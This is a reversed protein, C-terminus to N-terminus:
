DSIGLVYSGPNATQTFIGHWQWCTRIDRACRIFLDANYLRVGHLSFAGVVKEDFWVQDIKRAHELKAFKEARRKEDEAREQQAREQQRREIEQRKKWRPTGSTTQSLTSLLGGFLRQGRKKEEQSFNRRGSSSSLPPAGIPRKAESSLRSAVESDNAKARPSSNSDNDQTQRDLREQKLESGNAVQGEVNAEAGAGNHERVNRDEPTEADETATPAAAELKVRKSTADEAPPSPSAKRKQALAEETETMQASSFATACVARQLSFGFEISVRQRRKFLIRIPTRFQSSAGELLPLKSLTLVGGVALSLPRLVWTSAFGSRCGSSLRGASVRQAACLLSCFAVGPSASFDVRCSWFMQKDCQVKEDVDDGGCFSRWFV